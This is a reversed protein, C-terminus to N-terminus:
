AKLIKKVSMRLDEFLRLVKNPNEAIFKEESSKGINM